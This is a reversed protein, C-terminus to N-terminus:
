RCRRARTGPPVAAQVDVPEDPGVGPTLEHLRAEPEAIAGQEDVRREQAAVVDSRQLALEIREAEIRALLVAHVTGLGLRRHAIELAVDAVFGVAYDPQVRDRREFPHTREVVHRPTPDDALGLLETRDAALDVARHDRDVGAASGADLGTVHSLRERAREGRFQRADARFGVHDM